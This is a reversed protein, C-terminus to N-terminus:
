MNYWCWCTHSEIYVNFMKSGVRYMKRKPKPICGCWVYLLFIWCSSPMLCQEFGCVGDIRFESALPYLLQSMDHSMDYLCRHSEVRRQDSGCIPRMALSRDKKWTAVLSGGLCSLSLSWSLSSSLTLSAVFSGAVRTTAVVTGGVLLFFLLLHLLVRQPPFSSSSGAVVVLQISCRVITTTMTTTKKENTEEKWSNWPIATDDVVLLPDCPPVLWVAIWQTAALFSRDLM